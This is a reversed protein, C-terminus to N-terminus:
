ELFENLIKSQTDNMIKDYNKEDAYKVPLNLVAELKESQVKLLLQQLRARSCISEKEHSSTM